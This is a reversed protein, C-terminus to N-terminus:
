LNPMREGAAKARANWRRIEPRRQRLPAYFIQEGNVPFVGRHVCVGNPQFAAAYKEKSFVGLKLDTAYAIAAEDYYNSDRCTEIADSLMEKGRLGGVYFWSGSPVFHLNEPDIRWSARSGRYRTLPSAFYRHNDSTQCLEVAMDFDVDRMLRCDWDLWIAEDLDYYQMAFLMALLKHSWISKGHPAHIDLGREGRGRLGTSGIQLVEDYGCVKLWAANEDGFAVVPGDIRHDHWRALWADQRAKTWRPIGADGWLSRVFAGTM